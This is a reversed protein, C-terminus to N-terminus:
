ARILLGILEVACGWDDSGTGIVVEVASSAEVSALLLALSTLEDCCWISTKNRKLLM